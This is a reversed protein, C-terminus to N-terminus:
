KRYKQTLNFTEKWYKLFHSLIMSYHLFDHFFM